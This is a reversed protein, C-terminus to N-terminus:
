KTCSVEEKKGRVKVEQESLLGIVMKKGRKVTERRKRAARGQRWKEQWPLM